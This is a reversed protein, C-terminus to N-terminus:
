DWELPFSFDVFPKYKTCSEHKCKWDKQKEQKIQSSILHIFYQSQVIHSKHLITNTLAERGRVQTWSGAKNQNRMSSHFAHAFPLNFVKGKQLLLIVLNVHDCFFSSVTFLSLMPIGNMVNHLSLVLSCESYYILKLNIIYLTRTFSTVDPQSGPVSSAGWLEIPGTRKVMRM